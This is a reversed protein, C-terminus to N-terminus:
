LELVPTMRATIWLGKNLHDVLPAKCQPGWTRKGEVNMDHRFHMRVLAM